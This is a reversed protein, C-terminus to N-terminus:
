WALRVHTAEDKGVRKSNPCGIAGPRSDISCGFRDGRDCSPPPDLSGGCPRDIRAVLAGAGTLSRVALVAIVCDTRGFM